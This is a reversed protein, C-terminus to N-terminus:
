RQGAESDGVIEVRLDAKNQHDGQRGFVANQDDLHRTFAPDDVALRDEFCSHIGRPQAKPRAKPSPTTGSTSAVPAPASPRMERPSLTSLPIMAEVQRATSNTGEKKATNCPSSSHRLARLFTGTGAARAASHVPRRAPLNKSTAALSTACRRCCSTPSIRKPARRLATMYLQRSSM